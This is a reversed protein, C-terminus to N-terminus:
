ICTSDFTRYYGCLHTYGAMITWWAVMLLALLPFPAFALHGVAIRQMYFGTGIFFVMGLLSSSWHLGLVRYLFHFCAAGGLVMAQSSNLEVTGLETERYHYGEGTSV